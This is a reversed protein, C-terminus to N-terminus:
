GDVAADTYAAPTREIITFTARGLYMTLFESFDHFQAFLLEPAIRAM